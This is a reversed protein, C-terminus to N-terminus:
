IHILSLDTVVLTYEGPTEVSVMQSNGLLVNNSNFWEYSFSGGNSSDSGDLQVNDIDCTIIQDSGADAEPEMFNDTVVISEEVTCDSDTDTLVLTYSGANEVEIIEENSILTQSEDFWSFSLNGTGSSNSADLLSLIQNCNIEEPTNFAIDPFDANSDIFVRSEASCGSETDTVILTYEGDESTNTTASEALISGDSSLWQYTLNSGQSGTADLTAITEACTITFPNGADAIPMDQNITIPFPFETICGNENNTVVLNYNGANEINLSSSQGLLSGNDTNFWQYSIDNLNSNLEIADVTFDTVLCNLTEINIVEPDPAAFNEGVQIPLESECGNDTNRVIFIYTGVSSVDITANSSISNQNQDIWEYVINPGSSSNVGSLTISQNNCDITAAEELIVEPINDDSSVEVVDIATCGNIDDTVIVEYTGIASVPISADMGITNGNLTWEYSLSGGTNSTGSATLMTESQACTLQADPGADPTPEIFNNIVDIDFAETCGNEGTVTVTYNGAETVTATSENGLNDSWEYATIIQGSTSEIQM